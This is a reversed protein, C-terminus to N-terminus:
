ASRNKQRDLHAKVIRAYDTYHQRQAGLSSRHVRRYALVEPLMYYRFGLYKARSFWEVFDGVTLSTDFVGVRDFVTRRACMTIKSLGPQPGDPLAIAAQEDPPLDPSIFQQVHSFCIDYDPHAEFFTWQQALKDAVWLDDADIFAVFDGSAYGIARNLTHALGGNPQDYLTIRNGYHRLKALTDDTSGDNVVIVEHPIVTQAFVSTLTEDMYRSANYAPMIVSIPVQPFSM